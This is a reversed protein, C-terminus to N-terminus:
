SRTGKMSSQVWNLVETTVKDGNLSVLMDGDDDGDNSRLINLHADEITTQTELISVSNNINVPM